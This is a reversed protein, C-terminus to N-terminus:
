PSVLLRCATRTGSRFFYIGPPVPGSRESSGDWVPGSGATVLAGRADYISWRQGAARVPLYFPPRGLLAPRATLLSSRDGSETNGTPEMAGALKAITAVAAKVAETAMLWNNTGCDVYYLPGITDGITHYMPTFDHEIGCLAVYGRQWFSHHDSYPASSVLRRVPKLATYTRASAIFSDVLWACAPSQTKGIVELSDLNQRGYSIMDFNLAAKISDGRRAARRCFSDSGVLGQEEGTFGIFYVSYAFSIDQFVRAAEIVAATGSANDDSGPCHEPAYDSTNDIHGCIVYIPRPNIRGLKVGIVNPAYSTRYTELATSDCGYGALKERMWEVASRCSETTSYRTYFDQLRRIHALVSDPNVREVLATILSESVTVPAPLPGAPQPNLPELPLHCLEVPLRNLGILATEDTVLLVGAPTEGAIQGFRALERRDFGAPTKVYFLQRDAPLNLVSFSGPLSDLAPLRAEEVKILLCNDLEAVVPFQAAVIATLDSASQPYWQVVLEGAGLPLIIVTMFISVTLVKRM